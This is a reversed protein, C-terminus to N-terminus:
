MKLFAAYARVTMWLDAKSSIEFPSHMSIVPPGCDVINLGYAALYLAVTGGGGEEQKGLIASQWLVGAKAFASRVRSVYEASAESAGYKGTGGTYRVLCPGRGIHASNLEEHVEKYDPDVGAEVDASLAQTKLLAERVKSWHVDLGVAEFARAALHEIFNGSAGVSGYSGIEERDYIIVLTPRDPKKVEAVAALTAFVPLRDDQGYGGLLSADFGVSRAPGAPVIEIESSVLDEEVLGWRDYLIKLVALKFRDKDRPRGLPISVALLNMKDAVIAEGIKKDRQVKRDLHPLLDPITLVPDDPEEGFIIEVTRGGKLACFGWLALPRALWQFKKLGGYLNTRLMGFGPGSEEYVCKPKLDLRPSDGHAVILNFGDEPSLRGPRFFGILKEHHILFGGGPARKKQNLDVFGHGTLIQRINKVVARETKSATLFSLYDAALREAAQRDIPTMEDWILNSKIVLKNALKKLDDREEKRSLAM